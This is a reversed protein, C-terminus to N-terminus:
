GSRCLSSSTCSWSSSHSSSQLCADTSCSRSLSNTSTRRILSSNSALSWRKRALPACGAGRPLPTTESQRRHFTGSRWLQITSSSRTGPRNQAQCHRPWAGERCVCAYRSNITPCAARSELSLLFRATGATFCKWAFVVLVILAYALCLALVEGIRGNSVKRILWFVGPISGIALVKWGAHLWAKTCAIIAGSTLRSRRKRRCHTLAQAQLM